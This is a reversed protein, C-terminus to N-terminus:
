QLVNSAAFGTNDICSPLLLLRTKLHSCMSIHFSLVMTGRVDADAILMLSPLLLM